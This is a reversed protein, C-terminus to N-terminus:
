YANNLAIALQAFHATMKKQAKTATSMDVYEFRISDGPKLQAFHHLDANIITGLLPYGGTTQADNLLVIPEGNPPLQISGPNVALSPLSHSHSLTSNENSLRVGMRNSQPKVCWSIECFSRLAHETLLDAHISPHVRIVNRKPPLVGGRKPWDKYYPQIQINDGQKLAQGNTGGFGAALDTSRSGMVPECLVGGKVGVYARFGNRATKFSLTQGQKITYTWGPYVPKDDLQAQMDTGILAIVTDCKFLLKALGLTIEIVADDIDNKLLTNAMKAAFPDIAGSQSVGIHRFGFRGQDQISMLLGAKLVEIM